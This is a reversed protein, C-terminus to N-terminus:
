VNRHVVERPSSWGRSREALTAENLALVHDKAHGPAPRILTTTSDHVVGLLQFVKRVHTEDGIRNNCEWHVPVRGGYDLGKEAVIRRKEADSWRRRPAVPGGRGSWLKEVAESM